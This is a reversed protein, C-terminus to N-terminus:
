GRRRARKREEILPVLFAQVRELGQGLKRKMPLLPAVIPQLFAPLVKLAMALTFVNATTEPNAKHWEGNRALDRGVWTRATLHSIVRTM